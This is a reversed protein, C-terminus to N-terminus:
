KANRYALYSEVGIEVRIRGFRLCRINVIRLSCSDDHIALQDVDTAETSGLHDMEEYWSETM